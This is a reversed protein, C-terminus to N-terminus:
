YNPLRPHHYRRRKLNALYLDLNRDQHHYRDEGGLHNLIGPRRVWHYRYPYQHHRGVLHRPNPHRCRRCVLDRHGRHHFNRFLRCRCNLGIRWRLHSSGRLHRCLRHYRHCDFKCQQRSM